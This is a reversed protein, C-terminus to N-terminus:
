AAEKLRYRPARGPKAKLRAACGRGIMANLASQVGFVDMRLVQALESSSKPGDRLLVAIKRHTETRPTM